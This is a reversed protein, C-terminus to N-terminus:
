MVESGATFSPNGGYPHDGQDMWLPSFLRNNWLVVERSDATVTLLGPIRAAIAWLSSSLVGPGKFAIRGDVIILATDSPLDEGGCLSSTESDAPGAVGRVAVGKNVADRLIGVVGSDMGEVLYHVYHEAQAISAFLAYVPSISGVQVDEAMKEFFIETETRGWRARQAPLETRCVSCRAQGRGGAINGLSGCHPCTIPASSEAVVLERTMLETATNLM